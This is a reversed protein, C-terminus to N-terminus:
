LVSIKQRYQRPSMILRKRFEQNFSSKSNFGCYFAISLISRRKDSLLLLKSEEIRYDNIFSSFSKQFRHNILESLQDARINLIESLRKLSIDDDCFLKETEMLSILEISIKDIELNQTRSLEKQKVAKNKYDTKKLRFIIMLLLVPFSYIFLSISGDILKFGFVLIDHLGFFLVPLFAFLITMANPNKNKIGFISRLILDIIYMPAILLFLNRWYLIESRDNAFCMFITDITPISLSLILRLRSCENDLYYKHFLSLFCFIFILGIQTIILRIDSSVPLDTYHKEIFQLSTALAISLFTLGIFLYVTEKKYRFYDFINFFGLAILLISFSELAHNLFFDQYMKRFRDSRSNIIEMPSSIWAEADFYVRLAIQNEGMRVLKSEIEYSRFISWGSHFDPPFRGTKGILSIQPM